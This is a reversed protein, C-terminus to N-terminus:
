LIPITFSYSFVADVRGLDISSSNVASYNGNIYRPVRFIARWWGGGHGGLYLYGDDWSTNYTVTGTQITQNHENTVTITMTQSYNSSAPASLYYNRRKHAAVGANYGAQYNASSENARADAAAVAQNWVNTTNIYRYTNNAGMDIQTGHASPTFTGSPTPVLGSVNIKGTGNYYGAPITISSTNSVTFSKNKQDTITGLKNIVSSFTDGNAGVAKAIATNKLALLASNAESIKNYLEKIASDVNDVNWNTDKPDYSVEDAKYLYNAAFVITGSILLGVIIGLIFKKM